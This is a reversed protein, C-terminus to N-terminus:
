LTMEYFGDGSHEFGLRVAKRRWGHRYTGFRLANVGARQALVKLYNLGAELAGPRFACVGLIHMADGDPEIVAWVGDGVVLAAQDRELLVAIEEPTTWYSDRRALPSADLARFTEAASPGFRLDFESAGM